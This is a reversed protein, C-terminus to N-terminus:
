GTTGWAFAGTVKAARWNAAVRRLPNAALAQIAVIVREHMESSLRTLDREAARELLIRYVTV